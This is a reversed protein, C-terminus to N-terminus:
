FNQKQHRISMIVEFIRDRFKEANESTSSSLDFAHSSRPDVRSVLSCKPLRRCTYLFHHWVKSKPFATLCLQCEYEETSQVVKRIPLSYVCNLRFISLAQRRNLDLVNYVDHPGMRKNWNGYEKLQLSSALAEATEAACIDLIRQKVISCEKKVVEGVSFRSDWLYCLGADDLFTKIGRGWCHKGKEVLAKQELLALYILRDRKAVSLRFFFKLSRIVAVRSVMPRGLEWLVGASPTGRPVGLVTRCWNSHGIDLQREATKSLLQSIFVEAGYLIVPKLLTDFLMLLTQAPLERFRWRFKVLSLLSRRVKSALGEVHKNFTGNSSFIMGLYKFHKVVELKGSGYWFVDNSTLRGSERFVVVKSKDVNVELGWKACYEKLKNLQRQLGIKTVSLIALDDAYLLCNVPRGQLEPAHHVVSGLEDVLDRIFFTFLKPSLQDGQFVGATYPEEGTRHDKGHRVAFTAGEYMSKLVSYFKGNVGAERLKYLLAQRSLSDFARKFDIFACMLRGGKRSLTKSVITNLVFCQDMTSYNKKFGAQFDTDEDNEELWNTFRQNLIRTCLKGLNPLLSIGRYNSPDSVSGKGKFIPQILAIAWEQPYKGYELIYNFLPELISLLPDKCIRLLLNPIGWVGPAKRIKLQDIAKAIERKTFPRDLIDCESTRQGDDEWEARELTKSSLVTRFYGLWSAPSISSTNSKGLGLGLRKKVERFLSRSDRERHARIICNEIDRNYHKWARDVEEKYEQKAELYRDLNRNDSHRRFFRLARIMVTKLDQCKSTFWGERKYHKESASSKKCPVLTSLLMHVLSVAVALCPRTFARITEPLSVSDALLVCGSLVGTVGHQFMETRSELRAQIRNRTDEDDEMVVKPLPILARQDGAATSGCDEAAEEGGGPSSLPSFFSPCFSIRIPFHHSLTAVSVEFESIIERGLPCCLAYDIVSKGQHSAFTFEGETDARSTGNVIEFDHDQCFQLMQKGYANIQTDKSKRVFSPSELSDIAEHDKGFILCDNNGLLEATRANMDGMFFTPEVGREASIANLDSTM